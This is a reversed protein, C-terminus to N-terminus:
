NKGLKLFLAGEWDQHPAQSVAQGTSLTGKSPLDSLWREPSLECFSARVTKVHVHWGLAKLTEGRQAAPVTGLGLVPRAGNERGGRGLGVASSLPSTTSYDWVQCLHSHSKGEGLRLALCLHIPVQDNM